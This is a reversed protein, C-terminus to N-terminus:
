SAITALSPQLPGAADQFVSGEPFRRVAARGRQDVGAVVVLVVLVQSGALDEEHIETSRDLAV